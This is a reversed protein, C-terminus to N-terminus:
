GVAEVLLLLASRSLSGDAPHPDVNRPIPLAPELRLQDAVALPAEGPSSSFIMM